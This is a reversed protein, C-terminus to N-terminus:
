GRTLLSAALAGSRRQRKFVANNETQKYLNTPLPNKTQKTLGIALAAVRKCSHKTHPRGVPRLGHNAAALRVVDANQLQSAAFAWALPLPDHVDSIDM